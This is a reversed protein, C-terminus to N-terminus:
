RSKKQVELKFKIAELIYKIGSEIALGRIHTSFDFALSYENLMKDLTEIVEAIHKTKVPYKKAINVSQAIDNKNIHSLISNRWAKLGSIPLNKLTEVDQEVKESMIQPNFQEALEDYRNAARLRKEFAEHLFIGLNDKVFDLFSRMHLHKEKAGKGFLNNLHMLTSSIHANMTLSWFGPAQNLEQLYKSSASSIYKVVSFHWDAEDLERWLRDHYRVFEEEAKNIDNSAAM